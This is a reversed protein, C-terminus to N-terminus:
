DFALCSSSDTWTTASPYWSGANNGNYNKCYRKGGAGVVSVEIAKGGSANTYNIFKYYNTASGGLGVWSSHYACTSCTRWTHIPQGSPNITFAHRRSDYTWYYVVGPSCNVQTQPLALGWPDAAPTYCAAYAPTSTALPALIAVMVAVMVQALRRKFM